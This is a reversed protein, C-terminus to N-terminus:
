PNNEEGSIYKEKARRARKNKQRRIRETKKETSSAHGHLIEEVKDSLIRRAFFRNMAQTRAKQCKVEIGTPIHKLYVCSSSKNVKQGGRGQAHIFKEEIDKEEIGLDRMRDELIKKKEPSIFPNTM